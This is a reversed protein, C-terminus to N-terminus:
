GPTRDDHQHEHVVEVAVQTGFVKRLNRVSLVAQDDATAATAPGPM